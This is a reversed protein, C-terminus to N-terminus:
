ELDNGQRLWYGFAGILRCRVRVRYSGIIKADVVSHNTSLTFIGIQM